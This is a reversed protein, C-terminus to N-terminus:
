ATGKEAVDAADDGNVGEHLHGNELGHGNEVGNEGNAQKDLAVDSGKVKKLFRRDIWRALPATCGVGHMALLSTPLFLIGTLWSLLTAIFFMRFYYVRYAASRAFALPVVGILTSVAANTVPRFYQLLASEIREQLPSPSSPCPPICQSVHSCVGHLLPHPITDFSASLLHFLHFVQGFTVHSEWSPLHLFGFM